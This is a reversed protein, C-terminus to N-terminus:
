CSAFTITSIEASQAACFSFLKHPDRNIIFLVLRECINM